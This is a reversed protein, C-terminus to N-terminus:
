GRKDNRPRGGKKGNEASSRAKRESTMSGLVRAAETAPSDVKELKWDMGFKYIEGHPGSAIEAIGGGFRILRGMSRHFEKKSGNNITITKGIM